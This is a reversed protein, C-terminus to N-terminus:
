CCRCRSRAAAARPDRVGLHPRNARDVPQRARSRHRLGEAARDPRGRARDSQGRPGGCSPAPGPERRHDLLPRLHAHRWLACGAQRAGAAGGGGPRARLATGAPRSHGRRRRARRRRDARQSGGPVGQRNAAPRRRVAGPGPLGAHRHAGDLLEDPGPLRARATAGHHDMRTTSHGRRARRRPAMDRAKRGHGRLRLAARVALLRAPRRGGAGCAAADADGADGAGSGDCRDARARQHPQGAGVVPVAPGPHGDVGVRVGRTRGTAAGPADRRGAARLPAAGRPLARGDAARLRHGRRVRARAVRRREPGNVTVGAEATAWGCFRSFAEAMLVSFLPIVWFIPSRYILILLVFVLAGTALLLTGNISSFVNVADRAFGAPGTVKVTLGRARLPAMRSEVGRVSSKLLTENGRANLNVIVLATTRDPSVRVVVQRSDTVPPNAALSARTREIAALDRPNLGGDRRIVTIAAFREGSPFHTALTLERVSESSGPLFSSEENKQVDQFRQAFSGGLGGLILWLLIIAIRTPRSIFLRELARM